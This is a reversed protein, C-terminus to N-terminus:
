WRCPCKGKGAAYCADCVAFLNSPADFADEV